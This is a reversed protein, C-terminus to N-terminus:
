TRLKIVVKYLTKLNKSSTGVIRYIEINAQFIEDITKSIWRPLEPQTLM